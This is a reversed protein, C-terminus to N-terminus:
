WPLAKAPKKPETKEAIPEAIPEAKPAPKAEKKEAKAEHHEIIEMKLDEGGEWLPRELCLQLDNAEAWALIKDASQRDLAAGDFHLYKIDGLM